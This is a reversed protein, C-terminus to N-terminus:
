AVTRLAPKIKYGRFMRRAKRYVARSAADHETQVAHTSESNLVTDLYDMYIRVTKQRVDVQFLVLGVLDVPIALWSPDDQLPLISYHGCEIQILHYCLFKYELKAM